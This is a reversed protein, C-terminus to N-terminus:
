SHTMILCGSSAFAVWDVSSSCVPAFSLSTDCDRSFGAVSGDWRDGKRDARCKLRLELFVEINMAPFTSEMMIPSHSEWLDNKERWKFNVGQNEIVPYMTNNTYSSTFTVSQVDVRLQVVASGLAAQGEVVRRQASLAELDSQQLNPTEFVGHSWLLLEGRRRISHSYSGNHQSLRGKM